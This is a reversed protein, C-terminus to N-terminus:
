LDEGLIGLAFKLAQIEGQMQETTFNEDICFQELESLKTEIEIQPKM